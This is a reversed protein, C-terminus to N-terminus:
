AGFLLRQFVADQMKYECVGFVWMLYVNVVCISNELITGMEFTRGLKYSMHLAM